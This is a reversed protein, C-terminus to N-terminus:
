EQQITAYIANTAVGCQNDRNRAMLIYGDMGWSDAWSNRVIWYAVETGNGVAAKAVAKASGGSNSRGSICRTNSCFFDNACWHCKPAAECHAADANGVCDPYPSPAPGPPGSSLGYGVIAVGHDLDDAGNKCAEEIYVGSSYLQFSSQSADIGISLIPQGFSSLKLAAEDGVAAAVAFGDVGSKVGKAKLIIM